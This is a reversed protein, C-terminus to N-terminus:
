GFISLSSMTEYYAQARQPLLMTITPRNEDPGREHPEVVQIPCISYWRSFVSM